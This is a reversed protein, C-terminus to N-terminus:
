KKADNEDDHASRQRDAPELRESNKTQHSYEGDIVTGGSPRHPEGQGDFNGRQRFQFQTFRAQGRLFLHNLLYAGIVKRSAPLLFAVGIIDTVFGPTILMIGALFILIGSVMELAPPQGRALKRQMTLWNQIGQQKVLFAGVVATTVILLLTNLGGILSGVHLLVAIEIIPIAIFLLIFIRLM